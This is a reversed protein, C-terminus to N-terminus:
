QAGERFITVYRLEPDAVEIEQNELLRMVYAPPTDVPQIERYAEVLNSLGELSDQGLREPGDRFRMEEARLIKNRWYSWARNPLDNGGFGECCVLCHWPNMTPLLSKLDNTKRRLRLRRVAFASALSCGFSREDDPFSGCPWSFAIAPDSWFTYLCYLPITRIPHSIASRILLDSQYLPSKKGRYHLHEYTSSRLKIVKAQLRFGLWKGSNGTLWWEWDAGTVAEQHKPITQTIVEYPHKVKLALLNIDTLTEELPQFAVTAADSLMAWTRESQDRFTDCLTIPM